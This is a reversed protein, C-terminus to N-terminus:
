EESVEALSLLYQDYDDGRLWTETVAFIDFDYVDAIYDNIVRSKNCISRANLLAFDLKADRTRKSHSDINIISLNRQNVGHEHHYKYQHYAFQHGAGQLVPINLSFRNRNRGDRSGRFIFLGAM